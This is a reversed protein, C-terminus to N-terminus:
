VPAFTNPFLHFLPKLAIHLFKAFFCGLFSGRKGFNFVNQGGELFYNLMIFITLSNFETFQIYTFAYGPPLCDVNSSLELKIVIQFNPKCTSAPNGHCGQGLFYGFPEFGM